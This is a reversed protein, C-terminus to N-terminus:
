AKHLFAGQKLFPSSVHHRFVMSFRPSKLSTASFTLFIYWMIVRVSYVHKIKLVSIGIQIFNLKIQNFLLHM